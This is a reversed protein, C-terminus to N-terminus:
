AVLQLLRRANSLFTRDAVAARAQDAVQQRQRDHALWWALKESFDEPGDVTPIMPLVERNEGRAESLYFTGCAALEVERPGMAWGDVLHSAEAERRYLNLSSRTGRYLDATLENPYCEDLPHGVMGALRSGAELEQWNGALMVDAGDPWTVQELFQIRSPYGTGVMCFDTPTDSRGPYHIEPDYAHPIYITGDPFRHLNTPDNVINIDAHEARRIQRDDEYPSETHLLVVTHGRGSFADLTFNNVYFSSTVVIVDPWFDYANARISECALNVADETSMSKHAKAAREYWELRAAFNANAVQCGAAKLAKSWGRHVDAVSFNPGPDIM